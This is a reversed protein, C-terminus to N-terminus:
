AVVGSLGTARRAMMIAGDVPDAKPEVLHAAVDQPLYARLPQSIGGILSLRRAGGGVLKRAMLAVAQAAEAVIAVGHPDSSRAGAFVLPAFTSYDRPRATRAWQTLKERGRGFHDLLQDLLPSTAIVGDFALVARRIAARGVAAGSGDDGLLFGWGGIAPREGGVLAVAASGAGAIVIGGDEGKHAGLCAIYADSDVALTPFPLRASRVRAVADSTMAGALGFGAHLEEITVGAEMAAARATEIIVAIAADFDFYVNAVGGEAEGLKVGAEDRIRARCKSGGGDIGLFLRAMPVRLALARPILNSSGAPHLTGRAM